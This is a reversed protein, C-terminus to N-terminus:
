NETTGSTYVIPNFGYPMANVTGITFTPTIGQIGQIGQTLGFNLIPSTTSGYINVFPNSGDPLSIVTGISM